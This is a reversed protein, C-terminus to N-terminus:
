KFEVIPCYKDKWGRYAEGVTSRFKGPTTERLHDIYVFSGIMVAFATGIGFVIVSLHHPYIFLMVFGMIYLGALVGTLTLGASLGFIGWALACLNSPHLHYRMCFEDIMGNLKLTIM